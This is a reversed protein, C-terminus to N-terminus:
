IEIIDSNEIKLPTYRLQFNEKYKLIHPNIRSMVDITKQVTKNLYESDTNIIFENHL